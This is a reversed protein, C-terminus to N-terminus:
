GWSRERCGSIDEAAQAHDSPVGLRSALALHNHVERADTTTNSGAGVTASCIEPGDLGRSWRSKLQMRAGVRSRNAPKRNAGAGHPHLRDVSYRRITGFLLDTARPREAPGLAAINWEDADRDTASVFTPEGSMTLRVERDALDADVARGCALIKESPADTYPKTVRPSEAIRPVSM